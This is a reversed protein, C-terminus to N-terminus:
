CPAGESALGDEMIGDFLRICERQTQSWRELNRRLKKMRKRRKRGRHKEVKDELSSGERNVLPESLYDVPRLNTLYYLERFLIKVERSAARYRRLTDGLLLARIQDESQELALCVATAYEGDHSISLKAVQGACRDLGPDVDPHNELDAADASTPLGFAHHQNLYLRQVQNLAPSDDLVIAYPQSGEAAVLVDKLLIRRPQVAKIVAEKAAFRGALYRTASSVIAPDHDAAPEHLLGKFRHSFLLIERFSFVRTLFPHLRPLSSSPPLSSPQTRPRQLLSKIRQISCIDVGISYPLPFPRPPM